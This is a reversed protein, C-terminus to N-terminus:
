YLPDQINIGNLSGLLTMANDTYKFTIRIVFGSTDCIWHLLVLRSLRVYEANTSGILDKFEPFLDTNYHRIVFGHEGHCVLMVALHNLYVIALTRGKKKVNNFRVGFHKQM